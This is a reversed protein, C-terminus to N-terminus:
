LSPHAALWEARILEAERKLDDPIQSSLQPAYRQAVGDGREAAITIYAWGRAVDQPGGEGHLHMFGLGRLAHASGRDAALQYWARAEVDDETVGEATALMVATSIMGDIYGGEGARRAWQYAGPVDQPGGRGERLMMAYRWQAPHAGAEAALKTLQFIREPTAGPRREYDSAMEDLIPAAFARDVSQLMAFGTNWGAESPDTIITRMGRNLVPAQAGGAIARDEWDRSAEPNTEQLLIAMLNMADANGAGASMRAFREANAIDQAQLYDMATELAADDDGAEARAVMAPDPTQARAIVPAFLAFALAILLTRM